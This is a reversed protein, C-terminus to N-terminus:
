KGEKFKNNQHLISFVYEDFQKQDKEDEEFYDYDLRDISRCPPKLSLVKLISPRKEFKEMQKSNNCIPIVANSNWGSPKWHPPRCGNELMMVNMVYEDYRKWDEICPKQNKNRHDIVNVNKVNFTMKYSKSKNDRVDWKRKGTYYNTFYQGPYHLSIRLDRPHRVGNPFINNSVVIYTKRLLMNPADITFCKGIYSRYSVYVIPKYNLFKEDLTRYYSKVLNNELSVTVNDYDISLMQEDWHKGSLFDKYSSMNIGDLNLREFEKLLFPQGFCITLSPYINDDSTHYQSVQVLTTDDNRCYRLISYISLCITTFLCLSFTILHIATWINIKM